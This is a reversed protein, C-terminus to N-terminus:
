GGAPVLMIEDGLGWGWEHSAYKDKEVVNDTAAM